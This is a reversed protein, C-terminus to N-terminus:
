MNPNIPYSGFTNEPGVAKASLAKELEKKKEHYDFYADKYGSSAEVFIQTSESTVPAEFFSHYTEAFRQYNNLYTIASIEFQIQKKTCDGDGVADPCKGAYKKQFTEISLSDVVGPFETLNRGFRNIVKTGGLKVDHRYVLYEVDRADNLVFDLQEGTARQLFEQLNEVGAVNEATVKYHADPVFKWRPRVLEDGADLQKPVNGVNSGDVLQVDLQEVTEKNLSIPM